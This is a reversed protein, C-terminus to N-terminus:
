PLNDFSQMVSRQQGGFPSNSRAFQIVARAQGTSGAFTLDELDHDDEIPVKSATVVPQQATAWNTSNDNRNAM